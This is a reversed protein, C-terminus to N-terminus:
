NQESAANQSMMISITSQPSTTWVSAIMSVLVFFPEGCLLANRLRNHVHGVNLPVFCKLLV